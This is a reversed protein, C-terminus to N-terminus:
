ARVAFVMSLCFVRAEEIREVGHMTTADFM